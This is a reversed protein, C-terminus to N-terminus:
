GKAGERSFLRPLLCIILPAAAGPLPRPLLHSYPNRWRGCAGGPAFYVQKGILILRDQRSATRKLFTPPLGHLFPVLELRDLKSFSM